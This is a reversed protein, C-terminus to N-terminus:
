GCRRTRHLRGTEGVQAVTWDVRGKEIGEFFGILRRRFSVGPAVSQPKPVHAREYYPTCLAEAQRDFAAERLLPNLTEYFRHGPEPCIEDHAAWLYPQTRQRRGMSM